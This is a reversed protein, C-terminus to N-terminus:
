TAMQFYKFYFNCFKHKIEILKKEKSLSKTHKNKISYCCNHWIIFIYCFIQIILIEFLYM